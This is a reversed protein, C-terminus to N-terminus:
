RRRARTQRHQYALFWCVPAGVVAVLTAFVRLAVMDSGFPAIVLLVTFFVASLIRWHARGVAALPAVVPRLISRAVRAAPELRRLLSRSEAPDPPADAPATDAAARSRAAEVVARAQDNAPEATGSADIEFLAIGVSDAYSYADDDYGRGSFFLLDRRGLGRAGYLREVDHATASKGRWCVVAYAGSSYVDIGGGAGGFLPTADSYGWERMREAATTEAEVITRIRM